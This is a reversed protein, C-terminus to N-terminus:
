GFLGTGFLGAAGQIAAAIGALILVWKYELSLALLCAYFPICVILSCLVGMAGDIGM